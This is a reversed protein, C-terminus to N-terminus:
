KEESPLLKASVGEVKYTMGKLLIALVAAGLSFSFFVILAPFTLSLYSIFFISLWAALTFHLQTVGIIASLKLLKLVSLDSTNILPFVWVALSFFLILLTFFGFVTFISYVAQNSSLVLYNSFLILGSLSLIAGLKNAKSFHKKYSKKYEKKARVSVEQIDGIGVVDILAAFSPFIGFVVCGRVTYAWFFINLKALYYIINFFSDLGNFIRNQKM